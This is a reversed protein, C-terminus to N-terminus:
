KDSTGRRQMKVGLEGFPIYRGSWPNASSRRRNARENIQRVPVRTGYEPLPHGEQTRPVRVTSALVGFSRRITGTASATSLTRCYILAAVFLFSFPRRRGCYPVPAPVAVAAGAILCMWQVPVTRVYSHTHCRIYLNCIVKPLNRQM